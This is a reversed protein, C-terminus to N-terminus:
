DADERTLEGADVQKMLDVYDDNKTTRHVGKVVKRKKFTGEIEKVM